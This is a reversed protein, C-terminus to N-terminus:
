EETKLDDNNANANINEDQEIDKADDMKSENKGISYVPEKKGKKNIFVNSVKILKFLLVIILVEKVVSISFSLIGLFNLTGMGNM